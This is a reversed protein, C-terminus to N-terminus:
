LKEIEEVVKKMELEAAGDVLILDKEKIKSQIDFKAADVDLYTYIDEKPFGSNIAGQAIFKARPGITFLVDFVEAVKDGIKEHIEATYEKLGIIDGLVAVKRGKFSEFQSLAIKNLIDIAEIMTSLSANESDDLIWTRKIGEIIKMKGPLSKYFKLNQSAELPNIGFIFSAGIAVLAAYIQERGFIKNLWVPIVKGEFNLKFNTGEGGIMIDSARLRAKEDFGFTLNGSNAIRKLQWDDTNILFINKYTKKSIIYKAIEFSRSNAPTSYDEPLEKTSNFIIIKIKSNPVIKIIKLLEEERTPIVIIGKYFIKKFLSTFNSNIKKIRKGSQKFVQFIAEASSERYYGNVIIIESRLFKLLIKKLFNNM